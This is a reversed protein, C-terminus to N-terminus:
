NGGAVLCPICAEPRPTAKEQVGSLALDPPPQRAHERERETELDFLSSPASSVGDLYPLFHTPHATAAKPGAGVEAGGADRLDEWRMAGPM